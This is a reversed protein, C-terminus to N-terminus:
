ESAVSSTELLKTLNKTTTRADFQIGKAQLNLIVEKRPDANTVPASNPPNGNEDIEKFQGNYLKGDQIYAIHPHGLSTQYPKSRDM